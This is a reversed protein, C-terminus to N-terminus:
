ERTTHGGTPSGRSRVYFTLVSDGSVLTRTRALRESVEPAVDRKAHEIVLLGGDAVLSGAVDLAATMEHLGYPPDIFVVEFARDGLQVPVDAFRARIIAYRDSGVGCRVLNSEILRVARPDREVFTVWAAGRSLAEIGVAGTGAYGDLVAAGALRPALVNFLTERLKDSTPRLGEWSPSELRRGKLTGAIVRL